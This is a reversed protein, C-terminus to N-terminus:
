QFTGLVGGVAVILVAVRNLSIGALTSELPQFAVLIGAALLVVLLPSAEEAVAESSAMAVSSGAVRAAAATTM